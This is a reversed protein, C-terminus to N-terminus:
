EHMFYFPPPGYMLYGGRKIDHGSELLYGETLGVPREGDKQNGYLM